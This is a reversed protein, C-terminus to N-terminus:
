IVRRDTAPSYAVFIQEFNVRASDSQMSSDRFVAYLPHMKAIETIVEEDIDAAFCAIIDDDDVVFVQKNAIMKEEIKASLSHGLQLMVQFLLDLSTRDEKINDAYDLLSVQKYEDASYYVDKMNSSDLKLVRFGTDLDQTTLPSEEKIKKGARRIREKGIECINKYGAKYAESKEDCKEPVQVMIFKRNGGDEANLQMVAHATTASGSFFDLVLMDKLPYTSIVFKIYEIAKPYDFCLNEAKIWKTSSQSDFFIISKPLSRENEYLYNKLRPMVTEDEGFFIYGDKILQDMTDKSYAWGRAGQKCPKRTIPHLIDYRATSNPATLDSPHFPGRKDVYTYHDFEYYKPYKVLATLESHIEEESLGSKLLRKAVKKFDDINQKAVSWEGKEDLAKKERAYCLLYEHTVSVHKSQNKASNSAVVFVAIFNDRGFIEDCIKILNAQENDDCSIFIVGDESLLDRAIKLRPYIM